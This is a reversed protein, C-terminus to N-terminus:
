TQEPRLDAAARSMASREVVKAVVVRAEFLALLPVMEILMTIPDTGPLAMAVVAIVM